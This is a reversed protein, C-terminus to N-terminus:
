ENKNNDKRKLNILKYICHGLMTFMILIGVYDIILMLLNDSYIPYINELTLKSIFDQSIFGHIGFILTFICMFVNLLIRNEKKFKIISHYHLGIHLGILMYITYASIIHLERGLTDNTLNMFNFINQSIMLASVIMIIMMLLLLTDIITYAIRLKSYKGKFLGKYYNINLIQHIIFLVFISVGLIEHTFIGTIQNYMLLLFLIIMLIDIVLKIKKM